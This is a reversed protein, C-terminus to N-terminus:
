PHCFRSVVREDGGSNERLIKEPFLNRATERAIGAFGFRADVSVRERHSRRGAPRPSFSRRSAPGVLWVAEFKTPILSYHRFPVRKGAFPLGGISRGRRTRIHSAQSSAAARPGSDVTASSSALSVTDPGSASM